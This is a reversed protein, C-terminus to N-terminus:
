HVINRGGLHTVVAGVLLPRLRYRLDVAIESQTPGENSKKRIPEILHRNALSEILQFSEHRPLRFIRDHEDLSLTRHELFAKLTFNQALNLSDLVSFDPREPATMTVGDGRTFDASLMWQFLALRLNGSSTRHLRDFYETQVLDEFGGPDRMRRFKRRLMAFGSAPPEEFRVPLGSRRHRLLIAARVDAASLPNLDLIDLQAVASPEGIAILQWASSTVGGIWFIRPETEAMLTLVREILDTGQPVRLYLHELNDLAVAGPLDDDAADFLARSLADITDCTPLELADSVKKAFTAEDSIRRDLTVRAVRTGTEALQTALVNIFSTIGSGPRGRIVFPVGEDAQWREWRGM